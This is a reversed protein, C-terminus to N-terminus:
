CQENIYNYGSECVYHCEGTNTSYEINLSDPSWAANLSDKTQTFQGETSNDSGYNWSANTPLTGNCDTEQTQTVYTCSNGDQTYETDCKWNCAKTLDTDYSWTQETIPEVTSLIVGDGSPTTGNCNYSTLECSSGNWTYGDACKYRCTTTGATTNYSTISDEPQWSNGDWTQTYKSVTNWTTNTPKSACTFTQTAPECQGNSERYNTQCEWECEADEWGNADTYDIKVALETYSAHNPLDNASCSVTKQNICEGNEYAYNDACRWQCDGNLNEDYLWSLKKTSKTNSKEVGTSPYSGECTYYTTGGETESEVQCSTVTYNKDSSSLTGNECSRTEKYNSCSEGYPITAAEYYNKSEGHKIVSGDPGECNQKTEEYGCKTSNEISTAYTVSGDISNCKADTKYTTGECIAELNVDKCLGCSQETSPIYSDEANQDCDSKKTLTRTQTGDTGCTSWEGKEWDTDSNTCARTAEVKEDVKESIENAEEEAQQSETQAQSAEEEAAIRAAEAAEREQEAAEEAQLAEQYKKQAVKADSIKEARIRAAEAEAAKHAAEEAKQKQIEAERAAKEAELQKQEALTALRAAEEKQAQEEKSLAVEARAKEVLMTEAEFILADTVEATGHMEETIEKTDNFTVEFDELVQNIVKKDETKKSLDLIDTAYKRKYEQTKTEKETANLTTSIELEYMLEKLDYLDSDPLINSLLKQHFDLIEGIKNKVKEIQEETLDYQDMELGVGKITNNFEAVLELAAEEKNQDFLIGAEIM